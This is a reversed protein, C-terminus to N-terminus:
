AGICQVKVSALRARDAAATVSLEPGDKAAAVYDISRSQLLNELVTSRIAFNVNQPIDNTVGAVVLADLKSVVIGVLRGKSDLVPGGSNGPQVPASIQLASPDGRMGSLASLNGVTLNGQASLVGTLPFGFVVLSEGLQPPDSGRFTVPVPSAIPAKLIALDTFESAEVVSADVPNALGYIVRVSQCGKVVHANTVIYGAANVIFGSGGSRASTESGGSTESRTPPAQEVPASAVNSAAASDPTDGFLRLKYALYYVDPSDYRLDGLELTEAYKSYASRTGEGALGDVSGAEFGRENLAIQLRKVFEIGGIFPSKRPERKQWKSIIQRSKKLDNPTLFREQGSRAKIAADRLESPKLTKVALAFMVHASISNGNQQHLLGAYYQASGDGLDSARNFFALAKDYDAAVGHGLVYARGLERLSSADDRSAAREWYHVALAYDQAVGEGKAYADGVAALAGVAGQFAAQRYFRLAEVPDAELGLWGIKYALGLWGQAGADGNLSAKFCNVMSKSEDDEALSELMCLLDQAPPHGAEAARRYRARWEPGSSEPQKHSLYLGHLFLADISGSAAAEEISSVEAPSLRAFFRASESEDSLVSGLPTLLSTSVVM